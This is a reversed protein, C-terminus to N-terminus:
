DKVQPYLRMIEDALQKFKPNGKAAKRIKKLQHKVYLPNEQKGIYAFVDSIIHKKGTYHAHIITYPKGKCFAFTETIIEFGGTYLGRRLEEHRTMPQLIFRTDEDKHKCGNLITVITEGGMGAIIIDDCPPLNEFGDSLVLNVCAGGIGYSMLSKRASELPKPNIDSAFIEGGHNNQKLFCPLLAHDSGIDAVSKGSRVLAACAM